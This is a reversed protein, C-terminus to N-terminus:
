RTLASRIAFARQRANEYEPSDKDAITERHTKFEIVDFWPSDVYIAVYIGYETEYRPMDYGSESSDDRERRIETRSEHVEVDCGTVQRYDIVDPNESRWDGTSVVVLKRAGDDLLVKTTGGLTRTVDFAAVDAKNAERYSLQREIDAITSNRWASFFPSLNRVCSECVFGDGVKRRDLDLEGGCIGCTEKGFLGM